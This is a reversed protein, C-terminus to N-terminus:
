KRLRPDLRLLLFDGILAGVIVIVMVFFFTGELVPYDRNVVADVILDGLGPYGFVAEVIVIASLLSAMSYGLLSVAPLLSNRMIYGFAVVSDRLGRSRAAVVYDNKIAEQAAGRLVFYNQGFVVATLTLVPLVAHRTASWVFAPGGGLNPDVNGYLPFWGLTVSFIWLLIMGVWFAPTSWLIISGFTSGFEFKGGRRLSSIGALLYSILFSLVFSAAVLTITWFVRDLILATVPQPYFQYSVGFYPPWEAFIDKLYYYYQAYLPHNLGLREAILAAEQSPVKSGSALIEAASGPILRPLFFNLNLAAFFSVVSIIIRRRLFDM